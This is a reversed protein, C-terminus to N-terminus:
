AKTNCSSEFSQRREYLIIIHRKDTFNRKEKKRKNKRDCFWTIANREPNGIKRQPTGCYFCITTAKRLWVGAIHQKIALLLWHYYVRETGCLSHRAISYSPQLLDKLTELAFSRLHYNIHFKRKCVYCTCMSLTLQEKNPVGIIIYRDAVRIIEGLVDRYLSYPLHEILETCIILDFSSSKFPLRSATAIISPVNLLELAKRSIDLGVIEYKKGLGNALDGSGCGIDLISKIGKPILSVTKEIRDLDNESIKEEWCDNQNYFFTHHKNYDSAEELMKKNLPPLLLEHYDRIYRGRAFYSAVNGILIGLLDHSHYFQCPNKILQIIAKKFSFIKKIAKIPYSAKVSPFYKILDVQYGNNELIKIEERLNKYYRGKDKYLIGISKVKKTNSLTGKSM